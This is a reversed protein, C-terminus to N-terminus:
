SAVSRAAGQALDEIIGLKDFIATKAEAFDQIASSVTEIITYILRVAGIVKNIKDYADFAGKAWGIVPVAADSALDLLATAITNLALGIGSCALKCVTSITKTYSSATAFAASLGLCGESITAMAARLSNGSLGEWTAPTSAVRGAHNRAIATLSDGAHSWAEACRYIGQWDGALPKYVCRDLISFGIFKEAVWDISGLLLGASWRLDQVFNEPAQGPVLYSSADAVEGVTGVLGGDGLSAVLDRASNIGGGLSEGTAYAKTVFYSEVAGYGDDAGGGAAGLTPGNLDPYPADATGGPGGLRAILKSFADGVKGDSDALDAATDGVSAATTREIQGLTQAAQSGLDVAIRSLPDFMSLLLGTSDGIDANAPLYDAIKQAHGQQRQLVQQALSLTGYDIAIETM